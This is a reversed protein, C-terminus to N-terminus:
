YSVPELQLTSAEKCHAVPEKADSHDLTKWWDVFAKAREVVLQDPAALATALEQRVEVFFASQETM